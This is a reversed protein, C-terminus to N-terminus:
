WSVLRDDASTWQNLHLRAFSWESLLARQSELDEESHWPLPGPVENVHWRHPESRAQELVRYSWHGPDGATTLCVLRSGPVKLFGSVTAEWVQRPGATSGWQALEDVLLLAPKKGYASPGDAALVHVGAGDARLVANRQVQLLGDLNSRTLLGRMALVLEAAQDEDSAVVYGRQGPQAIEALWAAACGAMDTTKSGGRPRTLFIQRQPRSFDLVALADAIQWDAAAEGWHRGDELVLGALMGFARRVPAPAGDLAPL